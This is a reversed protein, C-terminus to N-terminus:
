QTERNIAGATNKAPFDNSIVAFLGRKALPLPLKSGIALSLHFVGKIESSEM